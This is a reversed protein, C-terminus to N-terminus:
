TQLQRYVKFRYSTVEAQVRKYNRRLMPSTSLDAVYAKLGNKLDDILYVLGLNLIKSNPTENFTYHQDRPLHEYWHLLWRYVKGTREDLLHRPESTHMLKHRWIQVAVSNAERDSFIYTNMLDAMRITQSSSTADGKWHASFLDIRAFVGMMFGYLTNPFGHLESGWHPLVLATYVTKVELELAEIHTTHEKRVEDINLM